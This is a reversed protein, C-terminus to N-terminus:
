LNFHQQLDQLSLRNIISPQRQQCIISSSRRLYKKTLGWTGRRVIVLILVLLVRYWYCSHVEYWLEGLDSMYQLIKTEDSSRSPLNHYRSIFVAESPSKSTSTTRTKPSNKRVGFDRFFSLGPSINNFREIDM